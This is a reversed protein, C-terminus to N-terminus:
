EVQHDHIIMVNGVILHLPHGGISHYIDTALENKKWDSKLLGEEDCVMIKDEPLYVFEVIDCSCHEYMEERSFHKDDKPKIETVEGEATIRVASSSKLIEEITKM